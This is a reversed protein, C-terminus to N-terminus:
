HWRFGFVARWTGVRPLERQNGYDSSGTRSLTGQCEIKGLIELALDHIAVRQLDIAV